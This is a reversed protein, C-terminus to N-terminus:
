RVASPRAPITQRENGQEDADREAAVCRLAPKRSFDPLRPPPPLRSPTSRCPWSLRLEAHLESPSAAEVALARALDAARVPRPASVGAIARDLLGSLAPPLLKQAAAQGGLLETVLVAADYIDVGRGRSDPRATDLGTLTLEGARSLRVTGFSVRGHVWLAGAQESSQHLQHLADCLQVGFACAAGVSVSYGAAEYSEILDALTVDEGTTLAALESASLRAHVGSERRSVSSKAGEAEVGYDAAAGNKM